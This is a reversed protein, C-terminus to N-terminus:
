PAPEEAQAAAQDPETPASAEAELGGPLVQRLEAPLQLVRGGADIKYAGVDQPLAGRRQAYVRGIAAGNKQRRPDMSWSWTVGDVEVLNAAGGRCVTSWAELRRTPSDIAPPELGFAQRIEAIAAAADHLEPANV